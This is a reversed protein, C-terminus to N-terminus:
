RCVSVWGEEYGEEHNHKEQGNCSEPRRNLFNFFKEYLPNFFENYAWEKWEQRTSLTCAAPKSACICRSDKAARVYAPPAFISGLPLMNQFLQFHRFM